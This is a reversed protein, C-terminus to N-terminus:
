KMRSLQGIIGYVWSGLCYHTSAVLTAAGVLGIGTIYGAIVYGSIFLLGSLASCVSAIFMSFRRPKPNPQLLPTKTYRSILLNYIMDFLHLKSLAGHMSVASFIWLLLPSTFAMAVAIWVASLAPTLRLWLQIERIESVISCSFGQMELNQWWINSRSM